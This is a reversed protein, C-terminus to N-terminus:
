FLPSTDIKMWPWNGGSQMTAEVGALVRSRATVGDRKQVM